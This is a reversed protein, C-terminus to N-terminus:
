LIKVNRYVIKSLIISEYTAKSLKYISLIISEYTNQLKSHFSGKEQSSDCHAWLIKFSYFFM